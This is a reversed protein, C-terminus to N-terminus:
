QELTELLKKNQTEIKEKLAQAEKEKEIGIQQLARQRQVERVYYGGGGLLAIVALVIIIEILGFGKRM